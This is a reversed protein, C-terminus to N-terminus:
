SLPKYDGRAIRKEKEDAVFRIADFAAQKTGAFTLVHPLHKFPIMDENKLDVLVIKLDAPSTNAVLSLFMNQLLVSKGAGTIGVILAHCTASNEFSIREDTPGERRYSQGILM